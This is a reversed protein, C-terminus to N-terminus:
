DNENDTSSILESLSGNGLYQRDISGEPALERFKEFNVKAEDKRKLLFYLFGRALYIRFDGPEEKELEHYLELAEDYKGELERIHALLFKFDRLPLNGNSEASLRIAELVREETKKLEVESEEHLDVNWLGQCADLCSPNKNLLDHYIERALQFEGTNTYLDARLMRWGIEDPELETLKELILAAEPLDRTELKFEFSRKLEDVYNSDNEENSDSDKATTEVTASPPQEGAPKENEENSDSDKATTEVTASPPQEGAPKENEENSDFDKATTEVSAASPQDTAPKKNEENLVSDKVTTEIAAPPPSIPTAVAPRPPFHFGSLFITAAAILTHKIPFSNPIAPITALNQPNKPRSPNPNHASARVASRPFHSPPPPAPPRSYLPYIRRSLSQRHRSLQPRSGAPKAALPNLTNM